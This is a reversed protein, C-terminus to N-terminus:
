PENEHAFTMYWVRGIIPTSSTSPFTVDHSSEVGLLDIFLGEDNKVFFNTSWTPYIVETILQSCYQRFSYRMMFIITTYTTAFLEHFICMGRSTTYYLLDTIPIISPISHEKKQSWIEGNNSDRDM